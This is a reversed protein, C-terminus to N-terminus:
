DALERVQHFAVITSRSIQQSNTETRPRADRHKELHHPPFDAAAIIRCDHLKVAQKKREKKENLMESSTNEVRPRTSPRINIGHPKNSRSTDKTSNEM